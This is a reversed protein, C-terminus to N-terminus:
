LNKILFIAVAAIILCVELVMLKNIRFAPKIEKDLFIVDLNKNM